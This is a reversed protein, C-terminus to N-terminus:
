GALHRELISNFEAEQEINPLHAAQDIVALRSAPIQAHIFEAESVPTAPDQKGVVVLTRTKIGPLLPANNMEMIAAGCGLYGDVPTRRIMQRVGDMLIANRARFPSTFWREVSPEVLPGIGDARAQKLRGEWIERNTRAATDCLALSLLREPWRAAFVQGAMGGLSLGVLHVKPVGLADLLGRMDEALLALSYPPCPAESQGHGRTDYRIVRFRGSFHAAQADWMTLDSALSNSFLVAPAGEPGEVRCRLSVGNTKIMQDTM